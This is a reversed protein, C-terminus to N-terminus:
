LYNLSGNWTMYQTLAILVGVVVASWVMFTKSMDFVRMKM